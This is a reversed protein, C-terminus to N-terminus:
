STASKEDTKKLNLTIFLILVILAMAFWQLAYAKHREPPMSVVAWDRIFGYAEQGGLRIIFPYVSKHLLQSIIKTDIKEILINKDSKKEIVEGLVWTKESPYYAQGSLQLERLPNSIDPIQRRDASAKIWGRDVLIIRNNSLLLPSLVDYGIQHDHYQNDLLLVQPLYTGRVSLNQYQAPLTQSETWHSPAQQSLQTARNLMDSKEEARQLQWYGLSSLLSIALAALCTMYWKPTFRRSFFPLSAM